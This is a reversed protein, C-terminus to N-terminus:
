HTQCKEWLIDGNEGGGCLTTRDLYSCWWAQSKEKYYNSKFENTVNLKSFTIFSVISCLHPLGNQRIPKLYYRYRLHCDELSQPTRTNVAM